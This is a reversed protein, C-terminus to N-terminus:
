VLIASLCTRKCCLSSRNWRPTTHVLVWGGMSGRLVHIRLARQFQSGRDPHVVVGEPRGRQMVANELARVALSAKISDDIAYGVVENSWVDKIACLHLKREKTWHETIDTPWYQNPSTAIFERQVLDDHM